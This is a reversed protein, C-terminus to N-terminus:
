LSHKGSGRNDFVYYVPESHTSKRVTEATLKSGGYLRAYQRASMARDKRVVGVRQFGAKEFFPNLHGM